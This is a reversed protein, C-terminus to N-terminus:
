FRVLIVPEKCSYKHVYTIMDGEISRLIPFTKCLFASSILFVSQM